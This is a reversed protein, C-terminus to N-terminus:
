LERRVHTWSKNVEPDKLICSWQVSYWEPNKKIKVYSSCGDDGSSQSQGLYLNGREDCKRGVRGWNRSLNSMSGAWRYRGRATIYKM